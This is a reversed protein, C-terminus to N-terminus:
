KFRRALFARFREDIRSNKSVKWVLLGVSIGVINSILDISEQAM